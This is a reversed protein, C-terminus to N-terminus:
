EGGGEEAEAEAAAQREELRKTREKYTAEALDCLWAAYGPHKRTPNADAAAGSLAACIFEDLVSLGGTPESTQVPAETTPDVFTQTATSPQDMDNM